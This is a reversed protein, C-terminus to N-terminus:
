KKNKNWDFPVSAWEWFIYFVYVILSFIINRMWEVQDTFILQYITFFVFLVIPYAINRKLM